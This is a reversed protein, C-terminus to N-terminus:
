NLFMGMKKWVKEWPFESIKNFNLEYNIKPINKM